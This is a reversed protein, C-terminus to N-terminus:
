YPIPLLISKSDLIQSPEIITQKASQREYNELDIRCFRRKANWGSFAYWRLFCSTNSCFSSSSPFYSSSSYSSFSSFSSFTSFSSVLLFFFSFFLNSPPDKYLFNSPSLILILSWGTKTLVVVVYRSSQWENIEVIVFFIIRFSRGRNPYPKLSFFFVINHTLNAFCVDLTSVSGGTLHCLLQFSM